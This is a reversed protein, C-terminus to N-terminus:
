FDIEILTNQKNKQPTSTNKPNKKKKKQRKKRSIIKRKEGKSLWIKKEKIGQLLIEGEGEWYM